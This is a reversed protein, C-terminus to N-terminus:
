GPAGRVVLRGRQRPVQAPLVAVPALGHARRGRRAQPPRVAARPAGPSAALQLPGRSILDAAGADEAMYLPNEYRMDIVGTGIEIRRTRVGIAAMLPFPSALQPAFHHVRLFAGDVGLEEAAVALELTQVHADRATPTVGGRAGWHGFSLFGIRKRAPPTEPVEVM